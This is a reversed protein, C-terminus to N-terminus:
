FLGPCQAMDPWRLIRVRIWELFLIQDKLGVNLCGAEASIGTPLFGFAGTRYNFSAGIIPDESWAIFSSMDRVHGYGANFAGGHFYVM